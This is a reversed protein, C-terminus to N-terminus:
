REAGLLEELARRHFGAWEAPLEGGTGGVRWSEVEAHGLWEDLGPRDDVNLAFERVVDAATRDAGLVVNWYGEYDWASRRWAIVDRLDSETVDAQDHERANAAAEAANTANQRKSAELPTSRPKTNM